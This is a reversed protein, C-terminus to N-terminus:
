IQYAIVFTYGSWSNYANYIPTIEVAVDLSIARSEAIFCKIEKLLSTAKDQMNYMQTILTSDENRDFTQLIQVIQNYVIANNDFSMKTDLYPLTILIKEGSKRQLAKTAHEESIIEIVNEEGYKDIIINAIKKM